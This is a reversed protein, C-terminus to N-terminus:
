IIKIAPILADFCDNPRGYFMLVSAKKLIGFKQAFMNTDRKNQEVKELVRDKSIPMTTKMM